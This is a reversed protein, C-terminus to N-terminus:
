RLRTIKQPPSGIVARPRDLQRVFNHAEMTSYALSRHLMDYECATSFAHLTVHDSNRAAQIKALADALTNSRSATRFRAALSIMQIGHVDIGCGFESGAM